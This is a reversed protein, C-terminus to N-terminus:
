PPCIVKHELCGVRTVTRSEASQAENLGRAQANGGAILENIQAQIWSDFKDEARGVTVQETEVKTVRETLAVLKTQGDKVDNLVALIDHGAWTGIILIFTGGAMLVMRTFGAFAMSEGARTLVGMMKKNEHDEITM